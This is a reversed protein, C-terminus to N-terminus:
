NEGRIDRLTDLKEQANEFIEEADDINVEGVAVLNVVDQVKEEATESM